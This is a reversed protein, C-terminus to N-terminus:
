EPGLSNYFVPIRCFLKRKFTNNHSWHWIFHFSFKPFQSENVEATMLLIHPAYSIANLISALRNKLKDHTITTCLISFDFSKISTIHNDNPSKLHELLEKSNKLIWMQNVWNRSYATERYEQLGQMINYAAKYSSHISGQHLM